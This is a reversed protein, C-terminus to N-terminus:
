KISAKPLKSTCPGASTMFAIGKYTAVGKEDTYLHPTIKELQKKKPNLVDEPKGEHGSIQVREGVRAGEPPLLPEVVSHDENSACLVLGESVVDRLRGPKVNTILVVHRNMLEDPICYNALGSVVQRAKTEGVDIEEVLLSDASPHKWAKRILGVQINLIHVPVEDDKAATDKEPINKKELVADKDGKVKKVDTVKKSSKEALLGDVSKTATAIDKAITDSKLVEVADKASSNIHVKALAKLLSVWVAPDFEAKDVPIREFIEDLDGKCQVYDMWRFIHPLKEAHPRSLGIVTSHLASFVILDVESLKFGNGLIVSKHALEENLGDLVRSCTESDEPFKEAFSIWKIVEENQLLSEGKESAKLITICLEKVDCKDVEDYFRKPDLSLRQCLATVLNQKTRTLSM